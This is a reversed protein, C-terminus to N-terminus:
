KAPTELAKQVGWGLRTLRHWLTLRNLGRERAWEALPKTEGRHTLFLTSPRNNAQERKTAWRCNEPSYSRDNDIRDVTHAASPARGMDSLFNEFKLWRKCVKIGRGGYRSFAACTKTGCRYLINRWIRYERSRYEGHRKALARGAALHKLRLCGCSKTGGASKMCLSSIVKKTGCACRCLWLSVGHKNQGRYELVKLLGYTNGTLDQFNGM